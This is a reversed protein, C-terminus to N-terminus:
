ASAEAMLNEISAVYHALFERSDAVSFAKPDCRLCIKLVRRYTFVSITLRTGHRMPPVGNIDTMRLNGAKLMGKESPFSVSFRKTPDGTNSVIATALRRHGAFGRKLWTPLKVLFAMVNMFPTKHRTHKLKLLEQSLSDILEPSDVCESRPRRILAYTVLNAATTLRTDAERLDMPMMICFQGGRRDGQDTNWSNLSVLLQQILLENTSQGRAEAVHRLQKFRKKDFEFDCLGPFLPEPEANPQGEAQVAPWSKQKSKPALSRMTQIALKYAESRDFEIKGDDRRYREINYSAKVRMRLQLPDFEPLPTEIPEGVLDAYHWLWDGLMQYAGIGDCTAHHFQTTVVCRDDATRIWVRLGVESRLDIFEGRPLELPEGIEGWSIKVEPDPAAVWCDRNGKAPKVIAQLLPHRQLALGLAQTIADRDVKGDFEMKVVFTMPFDARDDWLMYEEFPTLYLPFLRPSRAPAAVQPAELTSM